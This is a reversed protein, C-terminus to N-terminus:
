LFLRIRVRREREDPGGKEERLVAEAEHALSPGEREERPAGAERRRAVVELEEGRAEEARRSELRREGGLGRGLLLAGCGPRPEELRREDAGDDREEEDDRPQQPASGARGICSKM